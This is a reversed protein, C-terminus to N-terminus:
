YRYSPSCHPATLNLILRCLVIVELFESLEQGIITRRFFLCARQAECGISAQTPRPFTRERHRWWHMRTAVLNVDRRIQWHMLAEIAINKFRRLRHELQLAANPNAVFRM